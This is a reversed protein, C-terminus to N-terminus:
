PGKVWVLRRDAAVVVGGCDSSAMLHSWDDKDVQANWPHAGSVTLQGEPTLTVSCNEGNAHLGPAPPPIELGAATWPSPTWRRAGLQKYGHEENQWLGEGQTVFGNGKATVSIEHEAYCCQDARLWEPTCGSWVALSADIGGTVIRGDSLEAFSNVGRRMAHLRVTNQGLPYGECAALIAGDPALRWWRVDSVRMDTGTGVLLSGDKTWALATVFIPPVTWNGQRGEKDWWRVVAPSTMEPGGGNIGVAIKSGDPAIAVSSIVGSDISIATSGGAGAPTCICAACFILALSVWLSRTPRYHRHLLVAVLSCRQSIIM